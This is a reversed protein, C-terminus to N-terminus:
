TTTPTNTPLPYPKPQAAKQGNTFFWGFRRNFANEVRHWTHLATQWWPTTPVEHHNCLDLEDLIEDHRSSHPCQAPLTHLLVLRMAGFRCVHLHLLVQGTTCQDVDLVVASALQMMELQMARVQQPRPAMGRNYPHHKDGLEALCDVTYGRLRLLRASALQDPGPPGALYLRM